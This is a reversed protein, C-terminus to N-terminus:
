LLDATNLDRDDPLLKEWHQMVDMLTRETTIRHTRSDKSMVDQKTIVFRTREGKLFLLRYHSSGCWLDALQIETVKM